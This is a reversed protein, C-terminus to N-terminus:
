LGWDKLKKNLAPKLICQFNYSMLEMIKVEKMWEVVTKIGIKEGDQVGKLYSLSNTGGKAEEEMGAKFSIEARAKAINQGAVVDGSFHYDGDAKIFNLMGAEDMGTDKAKM